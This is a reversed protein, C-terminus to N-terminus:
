FITISFGEIDRVISILDNLERLISIAMEKGCISALNDVAPNIKNKQNNKLVQEVGKPLKKGFRAIFTNEILAYQTILHQLRILSKKTLSYQKPSLAKAGVNQLVSNIIIKKVIEQRERVADKLSNKLGPKKIGKLREKAKSTSQLLLNFEEDTWGCRRKLRKEILKQPSLTKRLYRSFNRVNRLPM